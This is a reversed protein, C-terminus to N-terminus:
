TSRRLREIVACRGSCALPWRRSHRNEHQMDGCITLDMNQSLFRVSGDALGFHAGGTHDSGATERQLGNIGAKTQVVTDFTSFLTPLGGIAWGDFSTAPGLTGSNLRQVEGIIITNSSGDALDRHSTNSNVYFIGGNNISTGRASVPDTGHYTTRDGAVGATNLALNGAGYCGGYDNYGGSWKPLSKFGMTLSEHKSAPRTPCLFSPINRSALPQGAADLQNSKVDANFNWSNYLSAQDMFPLIQLMWSQCRDGNEARWLMDYGGTTVASLTKDSANVPSTGLLIIAGPPFMQSRDHYNALALGLQKLHNKCQTRRASERAQQVAPLLLAILVAIIAIVVLLEILTFGRRRQPRSELSDSLDFSMISEWGTFPVFPNAHTHWCYTSCDLPTRSPQM